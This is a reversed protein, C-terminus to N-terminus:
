SSAKPEHYIHPGKEQREKSMSGMGEALIRYIPM